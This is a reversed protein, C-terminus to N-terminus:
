PRGETDTPELLVVPIERTTRSQYRGYQAARDVIQPWLRAREDASAVRATMPRREATGVAVLVDPNQRLNLFWAPHIDDGGRSAVVVLTEDLQLPATLMVSRQEGSRRGVTTLELSQASGFRTGLRGGSVKMLARHLRNMTKLTLDSPM